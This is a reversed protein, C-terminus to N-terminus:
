DGYINGIFGERQPCEHVQYGELVRGSKAILQKEVADVMYVKNERISPSAIYIVSQGCKPCIPKM